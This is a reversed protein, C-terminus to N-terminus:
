DDDREDEPEPHPPRACSEGHGQQRYRPKNKFTRECEPTQNLGIQSRQARLFAAWGPSQSSSKSLCVRSQARSLNQKAALKVVGQWGHTLSQPSQVMPLCTIRVQRCRIRKWGCPVPWWWRISGLMGGGPPKMAAATFRATIVEACLYRSSMASRAASRGARPLVCTTLILPNGAVSWAPIGPWPDSTTM